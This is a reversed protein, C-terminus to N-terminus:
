TKSSAAIGDYVAKVMRNVNDRRWDGFDLSTGSNQWDSYDGASNTEPIGNPYFYDDFVIGDVDYNNVIELCVNCIRDISGQKGPNLITTTTTGNTYSLLLGASSLAKDQSTNWNSGTSYSYPNIWAHCEM